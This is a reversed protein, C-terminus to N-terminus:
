RRILVAAALVGLVSIAVTPIWTEGLDFLVGGLVAGVGGAVGLVSGQLGMLLGLDAEDFAERAYMAQLPSTAGIAVGALVAYAIGAAESGVPLLAIGVATLAYASALLSQIGFREILGMLGVRGFIQCFGRLGGIAGATGLSLGAATMVPVQYVLVSAFSVGALFYVSLMRRVASSQLARRLADLPNVSPGSALSGAGRAGIGAIVAGAITLAALIRMTTRWDTNTVLWATLPLYIPSSLAGLITLRAIAQDPREPQLRVAAATTVSYFGTGGIVGGAVAYMAGFVWINTASAAGFLLGGGVVAQLGFPGPVDFRDLLRGGIFSSVGTILQAAGYTVGLSATSWGTDLTIPDILVGFAYFWSGFSTITILGLAAVGTSSGPRTTAM